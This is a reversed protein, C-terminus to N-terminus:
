FRVFRKVTLKLGLENGKEDIIQQVSKKNDKISPQDLLCVDKFFKKIRGPIMKEIAAEPKGENKAQTIAIDKEKEIVENQEETRFHLKKADGNSETM